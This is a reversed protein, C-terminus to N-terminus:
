KSYIFYFIPLALSAIILFLVGVPNNLLNDFIFSFIAAALSVVILQGVFLFIWARSGVGLVMLGEYSLLVLPLAMFAYLINKRIINIFNM